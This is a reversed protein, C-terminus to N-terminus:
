PLAATDVLPVVGVRRRDPALLSKQEEALEMLRCMVQLLAAPQARVSLVKVDLRATLPQIAVSGLM